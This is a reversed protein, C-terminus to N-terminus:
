IKKENLAYKIASKVAEEPTASVWGGNFPFHVVKIGANYMQTACRLCSFDPTKRDVPLGNLQLGVVYIRCSSLSIQRRALNWLVSEEAHACAGIMSETRSTIGIRICDPECLEKLPELTHNNSQTVIDSGYVAIAGYKLKKCAADLAKEFCAKYFHDNITNQQDVALALRFALKKYRKKTEPSSLVHSREKVVAELNEPPHEWFQQRTFDKERGDALCNWYHSRMHAFPTNELSARLLEGGFLNQGILLVVACHGYLPNDATWREADSSTERNCIAPLVGEFFKVTM